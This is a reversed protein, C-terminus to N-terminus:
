KIVVLKSTNSCYIGGWGGVYAPDGAVTSPGTQKTKSPDTIIVPADSTGLSIFDGNVIFNAGNTMNIKVGKQILLTDGANITIDGSVTYTQGALMTGKYTGATLTSSNSIAKGVQLLPVSVIAKDNNKSCAALALLSIGLMMIQLKKM